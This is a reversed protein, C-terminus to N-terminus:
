VDVVGGNSIIDRTIEAATLHAKEGWLTKVYATAAADTDFEAIMRPNGRKDKSDNDVVEYLQTKHNYRATWNARRYINTYKHKSLLM